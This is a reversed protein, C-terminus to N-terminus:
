KFRRMAESAGGHQPYYKLSKQYFSKAKVPDEFAYYYVDGLLFYCQSIEISNSEKFLKIALLLEKEVEKFIASGEQKNGAQFVQQGKSFLMSGYNMHWNADDPAIQTAKKILALGEDMKGNKINLLGDNGIKNAEESAMCFQAQFLFIVFFLALFKRM